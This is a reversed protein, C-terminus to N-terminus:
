AHLLLVVLLIIVLLSLVAVALRSFVAPIGSKRPPAAAAPAKMENEPLGMGYGCVPCGSKFEPGSGEYGCKPCRIATFRSGCSPCVPAGPRVEAGCEECFFRANGRIRGERAM